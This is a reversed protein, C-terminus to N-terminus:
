KATVALVRKGPRDQKETFAAAGESLPFTDAILPRLSGDDIRHALERLTASDPEVVFFEVGDAPAVMSVIRM